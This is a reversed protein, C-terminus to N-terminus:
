WGAASYTQMLPAAGDLALYFELLDLLIELAGKSRVDGNVRDAAVVRTRPVVSGLRNQDSKGVRFTVEVKDAQRRNKWALQTTGRFFVVDRRTLCFDPHVLGNGYAWIESAKCLLHYSLALGMWVVSWEHGRNAFIGWGQVLM